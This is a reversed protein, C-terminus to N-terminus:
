KGPMALTEVSGDRRTIVVKVIANPDDPLNVTADPPLYQVTCRTGSHALLSWGLSVLLIATWLTLSLTGLRM